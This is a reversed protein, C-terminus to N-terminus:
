SNYKSRKKELKSRTHNQSLIYITYGFMKGKKCPTNMIIDLM